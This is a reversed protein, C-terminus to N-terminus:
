LWVLAQQSGAKCLVVACHSNLKVRFLAANCGHQNVVCRYSSCFEMPSNLAVCPGATLWNQLAASFLPSKMKAQGTRCRKLTPENCCRHLSCIEVHTTLTVWPGATLWNQLAGSFLPLPINGQGTSCQLLTPDNCVQIFFLKGNCQVLTPESCVQIFLLDGCTYDSGCSPRSHALQASCWQM